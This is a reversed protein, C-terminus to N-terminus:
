NFNCLIKEHMGNRLTKIFLLTQLEVIMLKSINILAPSLAFYDSLVKVSRLHTFSNVYIMVSLNNCPQCRNKPNYGSDFLM